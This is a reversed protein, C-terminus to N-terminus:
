PNPHQATWTDWITHLTATDAPLAAQVQEPTPFQGNTAAQHAKIISWVLMVLPEVAPIVTSVVAAAATVTDAVDPM